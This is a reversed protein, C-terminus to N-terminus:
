VWPARFCLTSDSCAQRIEAVVARQAFFDVAARVSGLYAMRFYPVAALPLGLVDIRADKPGMRTVAAGGGRFNRTYVQGFKALMSWVTVAGAARAAILVTGMFSQTTRVVVEAGLELQESVTLGLADCARYHALGLDMPLWVGAVASTIAELHSPDINREYARRHGRRELSGLSAVLLTSRCGTAMPAGRYSEPLPVLTQTELM